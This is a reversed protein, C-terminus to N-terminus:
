RTGGATDTPVRAAPHAPAVDAHAQGPAARVDQPPSAGGRSGPRATPEAASAVHVVEDARAALSARHAVLLVACGADRLADLTRLVVQEGVADLHATPEDLVVVPSPHLLARALALRQRQGVSLGTGGTGLATTWGEPLTAVVADLGTLAAARDRSAPDPSGLVEHVTGPELVPRQPLWTVQRWYDSPDVDALPTATGDAAVLEVHGV